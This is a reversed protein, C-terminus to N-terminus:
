LGIRLGLSVGGSEARVIPTAPHIDMWQESKVLLGVLAGAAAGALASGAIITAEHGECIDFNDIGTLCDDDLALAGVIGMGLGFGAGYLAGRGPDGKLGRSIEVRWIRAREVAVIPGDMTEMHVWLSDYEVRDIHGILTEGAASHTSGGASLGGVSLRVRMGPDLVASQAAAQPIPATALIALGAILLRKM